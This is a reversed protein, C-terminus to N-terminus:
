VCVKAGDPWRDKIQKRTLFPGEYLPHHAKGDCVFAETRGYRTMSFFAGRTPPWVAYRIVIRKM